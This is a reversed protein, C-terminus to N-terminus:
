PCFGASLNSTGDKTVTGVVCDPTTAKAWNSLTVNRFTYVGIYANGGSVSATLNGAVFLSDVVVARRAAPPLQTLDGVQEQARGFAKGSAIDIMSASLTFSDGLRGVAGTVIYDVGLANGIESICEADTCGILQQQAEFGVMAAIDHKSIVAYTGLQALAAAAVNAAVEVPVGRAAFEQVAIRKKTNIIEVQARANEGTLMCIVGVCLGALVVSHNRIEM